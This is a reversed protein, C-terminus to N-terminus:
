LVGFLGDDAGACIVPPGIQKLYLAYETGSRAITILPLFLYLYKPQPASGDHSAVMGASQSEGPPLPILCLSNDIEPREHGKGFLTNFKGRKPASVDNFEGLM